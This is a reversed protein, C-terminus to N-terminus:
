SEVNQTFCIILNDAHKQISSVIHHFSLSPYQGDLLKDRLVTPVEAPRIKPKRTDESVKSLFGGDNAVHSVVCPPLPFCVLAVCTDSVALILFRLMEVLASSTYARRSNDVLQHLNGSLVFM